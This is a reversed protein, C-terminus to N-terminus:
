GIPICCLFFRRKKEVNLKTINTKNNINTIFNNNYHEEEKETVIMSENVKKVNEETKRKLTKKKKFQNIDFVNINKNINPNNNINNNNNNNNNDNNDNNNNNNDENSVFPNKIRKKDNKEKKHEENILFTSHRQNKKQKSYHKHSKPTSIHEHSINMDNKYKSDEKISFKMFNNDKNDELFYKDDLNKASSYSKYRFAKLPEGVNSHINNTNLNLIEDANQLNELSINNNNQLCLFNENNKKESEKQEVLRKKFEERFFNKKTPSPTKNKFVPSSNKSKQINNENNHSEGKISELFQEYYNMHNDEQSIDSSDIFIKNIDKRESIGQIKSELKKGLNEQLGYSINFININYKNDSKENM